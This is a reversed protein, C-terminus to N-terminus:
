ANFSPDRAFAPTAAADAGLQFAALVGLGALGVVRGAPQPLVDAEIQFAVVTAEEFHHRGDVVEGLLLARGALGSSGGDDGFNALAAGLLVFAAHVFRQGVGRGRKQLAGATQGLQGDDGRELRAFADDLAHLGKQLLGKGGDGGRQRAMQVGLESGDEGLPQSDGLGVAGRGVPSGAKLLCQRGHTFQGLGKRLVHAGDLRRGQPRGKERLIRRGRRRGRGGVVKGGEEEVAHGGRALQQRTVVVGLQKARQLLVGAVGLVGSGLQQVKAVLEDGVEARVFAIGVVGRQTQAEIQVVPLEDDGTLDGAQLGDEPAGHGLAGVVERVLGHGARRAQWQEQAGAAAVQSRQALPDQLDALQGLSFHDAGQQARGVDDVLSLEVGQGFEIGASQDNGVDGELGVDGGKQVVREAIREVAAAFGQGSQLFTAAKAKRADQPKRAAEVAAAVEVDGAIGVLQRNMADVFVEDEGQVRLQQFVEVGGQAEALGAFVGQGAKREFAAVTEGFGGVRQNHAVETQALAGGHLGQRKAFHSLDFLAQGAEVRVTEDADEQSAPGSEVGEVMLKTAKLAPQLVRDVREFFGVGHVSRGEELRAAAIEEVIQRDLDGADGKALECQDGVLGFLLEVSPDSESVRDAEAGDLSLQSAHPEADNARGDVPKQLATAEREVDNGVVVDFFRGPGDRSQLLIDREEGLDEVGGVIGITEIGENFAHFFFDIRVDVLIDVVTLM